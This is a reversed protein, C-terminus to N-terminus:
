KIYIKSIDYKILGNRKAYQGGKILTLLTKLLSVDHNIKISRALLIYKIMYTKPNFIRTLVGRSFVVRTEGGRSRGTSEGEHFVVSFPYYHCNLGSNLCDLIFVNEEGSDCMPSGLGLLENFFQIGQVKERRFSIEISSVSYGKPSKRLDFDINPYKKKSSNSSFQFAILDIDPNNEYYQCLREIGSIDYTVDDDAILCIDSIAHKLANNRNRSLGKGKITVIKVDSRILSKPIDEQEEKSQQWSIVYRIYPIPSLLVSDVKQIGDDLTCVLIDVTLM